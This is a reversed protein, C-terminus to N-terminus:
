TVFIRRTPIGPFDSRNYIRRPMQINLVNFRSNLIFVAQQETTEGHDIWYIEEIFDDPDLQNVFGQKISVKKDRFFGYQALYFRILRSVNGVTVQGESIEGQASETITEHRIPFSQYTVSDLVVDTDYGAFYLNSGSNDYDYLTYLFIPENVPKNKEDIFTSSADNRM